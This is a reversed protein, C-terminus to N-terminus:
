LPRCAISGGRVCTRVVLGGRWHINERFELDGDGDELDGKRKGSGAVVEM